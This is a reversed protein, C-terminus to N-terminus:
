KCVRHLGYGPNEQFDIEFKPGQDAKPATRAARKRRQREAALQRSKQRKAEERAGAEAARRTQGAAGMEGANLADLLMQILICPSEASSVLLRNLDEAPSILGGLHPLVSHLMLIFSVYAGRSSFKFKAEYPEGPTDSPVMCPVEAEGRVMGSIGKFKQVADYVPGSTLERLFPAYCGGPRCESLIVKRVPWKNITAPTTGGGSNLSPTGPPPAQTSM